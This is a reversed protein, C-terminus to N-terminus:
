HCRVTQGFVVSPSVGTAAMIIHAGRCRYRPVEGHSGSYAVHLMRGGSPFAVTGSVLEM